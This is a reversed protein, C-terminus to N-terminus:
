SLLHPPLIIFVFLKYKFINELVIAQSIENIHMIGNTRMRKLENFSLKDADLMFKDNGVNGIGQSLKEITMSLPFSNVDNILLQM